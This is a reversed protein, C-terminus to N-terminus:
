QKILVIEEGSMTHELNEWETNVRHLTLIGSDFEFRYVIGDDWNGGETTPYFIVADYEIGLGFDYVLRYYRSEGFNHATGDRKLKIELSDNKYTGEFLIRRLETDFDEIKRYRDKRGNDFIMEVHNDDQPKLVFESSLGSYQKSLAPDSVFLRQQLDYKLHSGYGGEHETMGEIVPEDGLLNKKDLQFGWLETEYKRNEYISSTKEIRTLYSEPMWKGDLINAQEEKNNEDVVPKETEKNGERGVPNQACSLFLPLFCICFVLPKMSGFYVRM